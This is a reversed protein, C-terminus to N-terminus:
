IRTDTRGILVRVGTYGERRKLEKLDPVFRRSALVQEYVSDPLKLQPRSQGCCRRRATERGSRVVAKRIPKLSAMWNYRSDSALRSLYGRTVTLIPM